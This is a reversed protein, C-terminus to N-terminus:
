VSWCKLWFLQNPQRKWAQPHSTVTNLAVTNPHLHGGSHRSGCEGLTQWREFQTIWLWAWDIFSVVAPSWDLEGILVDWPSELCVPQVKVLTQVTVAFLDSVSISESCEWVKRKLWNTLMQLYFFGSQCQLYWWHHFIKSQDVRLGLQLAVFHLFFM